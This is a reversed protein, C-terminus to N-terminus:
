RQRNEPLTPRAADKALSALRDALQDLQPKRQRGNIGFFLQIATFGGLAALPLVTFMMADDTLGVALATLLGTIIGAGGGWAPIFMRWGSLELREEIHIRTQGGGPAVTIVIKRQDAGPDAPSWTLTDGLVSIHGVIGLTRQVENVVAEHVSESTEGEVTRDVKLRDKPLIGKREPKVWPASAPPRGLEAAAARIRDPPIGVEAAVQEVAGISLAGAETPQEAQLEAARALVERVELESLKTGSGEAAAELADVFAGPSEFRDAPRVALARTLAQEFRGPLADLRERHAAPADNLRGLRVDEEM